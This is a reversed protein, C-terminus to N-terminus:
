HGSENEYEQEDPETFFSPPATERERMMFPASPLSSRPLRQLNPHESSERAIGLL